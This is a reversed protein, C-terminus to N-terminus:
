LASRRHQCGNCRCMADHKYFILFQVLIRDDEFVVFEMHDVVGGNARPAATLSDYPVGNRQNPARTQGQVDAGTRKLILSEGLLVRSVLVCRMGQAYCCLKPDDSQCQVCTTYFDSKSANQAFYVGRGFMVGASDGARRPDLGSHAIIVAKRYSTGHFLLYKGAM